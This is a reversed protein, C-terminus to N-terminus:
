KVLVDAKLVALHEMAPKEPPQLRKEIFGMAIGKNNAPKQVTLLNWDCEMNRNTEDNAAM